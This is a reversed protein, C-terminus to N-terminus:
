APHAAPVTALFDWLEVTPRFGLRYVPVCAVLGDAAALWALASEVRETAVKETGLLAAVADAPDLRTVSFDAAHTLQYLAALPARRNVRRILEPPTSHGWFPTSFLEPGGSAPRLVVNEDCLLEAHGAALRAVTTKGAGSAGFFVHGRGGLVVGCAHLWLAAQERPLAEMLIYSATREIASWARGAVPTRIQAAKTALNIWGVVGPVAFYTVPGDHRIWADSEAVAVPGEEVTVSWGPPQATLFAAYRERLPPLWGPPLAFRLALGGIDLDLSTNM